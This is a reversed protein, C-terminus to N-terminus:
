EDTQSIIDSALQRQIPSADANAIVREALQRALEPKRRLVAEEALTLDAEAVRGARGYSIGLQNRVFAWEPELRAAQELANIAPALNEEKGTALHARGLSLLIQGTNIGAGDLLNLAKKYQEVAAAGKGETLLIDGYFEHYYPDDPFEGTLTAMEDRAAAIDSLRYLAIARRYRTDTGSGELTNVITARAPLTWAELKQQLRAFAPGMWEPEPLPTKEHRNIHDQFVASREKAAPHTQYYESQRSQPLLRQAAIKRMAETLPYLSLMQGKMLRIAWQDAVGEDQRSRALIVRQSTDIGGALVGVAADGSGGATLAVAAVAGLIGAVSAERFVEGRRQVHGSAIHGIEHALVGAVELMNDAELLLGSYIYINDGETVYANYEPNIIVRIGLKAPDLGAEAAMPRAIKLLTQEIETDRIHSAAVPPAMIALAALVLGALAAHIYIRMHTTTM